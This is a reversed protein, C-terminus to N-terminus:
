RGITDILWAVTAIGDEPGPGADLRQAPHGVDGLSTLVLHASSVDHHTVYAGPTAVVRAGAAVASAVGDASDEIAIVESPDVGLLEACRRHADPAPKAADLHDRITYADFDALSIAGTADLNAEINTLSTGTALGCRLGLEVAEGLVRAVGPRLDIAEARVLKAYRETKAAQLEAARAADIPPGDPRGAGYAVIRNAGGVHDLLSRYTTEDWHWDLGAELFTENFARRHLESTETLTGLSGFVLASAAMAVGYGAPRRKFGAM